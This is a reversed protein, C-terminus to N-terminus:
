DDAATESPDWGDGILFATAEEAADYSMVPLSMGSAAPHDM